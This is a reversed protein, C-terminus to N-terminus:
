EKVIKVTENGMRLLYIGAPLHSIDLTATNQLSAARRTKVARGYMDFVEVDTIHLNDRSDRSDRTVYIVGRTPNPYVIVPTTINEHVGFDDISISFTGVDFGINNSARIAFEFRGASEPIGSIEGNESLYLGAPLIGAELSWTIPPYGTATLTQHYEVNICGNPLTTTTITPAELLQLHEPMDVVNGFLGPLKGDQTTWGNEATFRGGLTGDAHIDPISIDEGDTKNEGINNWIMDGSPNLM